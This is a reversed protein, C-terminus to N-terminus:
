QHGWWLGSKYISAPPNVKDTPLPRLTDIREKKETIKQLFESNIEIDTDDITIGMRYM